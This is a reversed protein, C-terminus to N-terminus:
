SLCEGTDFNNHFTLIVAYYGRLWACRLELEEQLYPNDYVKKLRYGAIEGLIEAIEPNKSDIFGKVVREQSITNEFWEVHQSLNNFSYPNNKITFKLM